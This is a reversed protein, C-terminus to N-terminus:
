GGFRQRGVARAPNAHYKGRKEDVGPKLYRFKKQFSRGSTYIFDNGGKLNIGRRPTRFHFFVRRIRRNAIDPPAPRYVAAPNKSPEPRRFGHRAGDNLGGFAYRAGSAFTAFPVSSRRSTHKNKGPRFILQWGADPMKGSLPFIQNKPIIFHL